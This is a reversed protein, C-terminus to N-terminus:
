TPGISAAFDGSDCSQGYSCQEWRKNRNKDTELIRHSPRDAITWRYKMIALFSNRLFVFYGASVGVLTWLLLTIAILSLLIGLITPFSVDTVEPRFSLFFLAGTMFFSTSIVLLDKNRAELRQTFAIVSEDEDVRAFYRWPIDSSAGFPNRVGELVSSPCDDILQKSIASDADDDCIPWSFISKWFPAFMARVPVAVLRFFPNRRRKYKYVYHAWAFNGVVRHMISECFIEVLTGTAYVLLGFALTVLASLSGFSVAKQALTELAKTSDDSRLLLLLMIGGNVIAGSTLRRRFRGDLYPIKEAVKNWITKDTKDLM